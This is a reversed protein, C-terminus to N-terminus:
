ETVGKEQYCIGYGIEMGQCNFMRRQIGLHSTNEIYIILCWYLRFCIIWRRNCSIPLLFLAFTTIILGSLKM